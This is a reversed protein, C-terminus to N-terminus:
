VLTLKHFNPTGLIYYERAGLAMAKHAKAWLRGQTSTVFNEIYLFSYIIYQHNKQM